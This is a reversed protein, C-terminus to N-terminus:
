VSLPEQGGHGNSVTASSSLPVVTLVESHPQLVALFGIFAPSAATGRIAVLVKMPQHENLAIPSVKTAIHTHFIVSLGLLAAGAVATLGFFRKHRYLFRETHAPPTQTQMLGM